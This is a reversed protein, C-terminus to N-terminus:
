SEKWAAQAASLSPAVRDGDHTPPQPASGPVYKIPRLPASAESPREARPSAFAAFQEADVKFRGVRDLLAVSQAKMSETAATAEEVLSANQQVVQEMQSVASTVQAIGQGQEKSAVAIESVLSSVKKVSAVVEEMTSGAKAVLKTGADVKEVSDGILGKIEKAAGASRQALNRVESAVVAFGRGQDGARAAEVAANLALINTQFAIGDIVGIIESIKRSSESIGTMTHVVEGVVKGGQIAVASAGAALADAERAHEANQTVTSTLEEMSSATEELTSAQEETRQSLDVNGQAIQASTDAVAKAGQAVEAVLENLNQQMKSLASLLEGIEDRSESRIPRTLDGMAVAHVASIAAYLPKTISRALLWCLLASLVLAIVGLVNIAALEEMEEEVFADEAKEAYEVQEEILKATREVTATELGVLTETRFRAAEEQKGANVLEFWNARAAAYQRFTEALQKRLSQEEASVEGAEPSDYIALAEEFKKSASAAGEALQKRVSEDPAAGFQSVHWRVSWVAAQASALAATRDHNHAMTRAVQVTHLINTASVLWIAVLGLLVVVFGTALRSTIRMRTLM